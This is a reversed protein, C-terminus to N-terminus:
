QERLPQGAACHVHWRTTHRHWGTCDAATVSAIGNDIAKALHERTRRTDSFAANVSLKVKGWMEEIANLHPSYPPMFVITHRVAAAEIVQNVADVHHIRANDMIIYRSRANMVPNQLLLQMFQAFRDGDTGGLYQRTLLVGDTPSIAGIVTVNAGKGGPVRVIAKVGKRSRGRRRHQHLNFGAEDIYVVDRDEYAAVQQCYQQRKAINGPTNREAPEIDLNKTTFDNEQLVRSITSLSPEEGKSEQKNFFQERIDVLRAANNQQQLECIVKKQADDYKRKRGPPHKTTLTGDKNFRQIISSITSVSVAREGFSAAIEKNSKGTLYLDIVRRREDDHLRQSYHHPRQKKNHEAEAAAEALADM